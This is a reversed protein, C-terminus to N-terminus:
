HMGPLLSIVCRLQLVSELAFQIHDSSLMDQVSPVNSQVLYSLRGESPLMDIQLGFPVLCTTGNVGDLQTIIYRDTCLITLRHCNEPRTTVIYTKPTLKVPGFRFLQAPIVYFM